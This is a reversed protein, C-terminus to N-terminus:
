TTTGLVCLARIKIECTHLLMECLQDTLSSLVNLLTFLRLALAPFCSHLLALRPTQTYSPMSTIELFVNVNPSIKPM